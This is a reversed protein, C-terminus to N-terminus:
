LGHEGVVVKGLRNEQLVPDPRFQFKGVDETKVDKLVHLRVWPKFTRM